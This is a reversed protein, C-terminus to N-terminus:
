SYTNKFHFSVRSHNASFCTDLLVPSAPYLQNHVSLRSKVWDLGFGTGSWPACGLAQSQDSVSGAEIVIIIGDALPQVKICLVGKASSASLNYKIANEVVPQLIGTPMEPLGGPSTLDMVLQFDFHFRLQQIAVYQKIEDLEHTLHRYVGKKGTYAAKLLQGLGETFKKAKKWQGSVLLEQLGFLSNALMHPTISAQMATLQASLERQMLLALRLKKKHWLQMTYWVATIIFTFIGALFVPHEFWRPKVKITYAAAYPTGRYRVQLIGKKYYDQDKLTLLHGTPTWQSYNEPTELFRYELLSDANLGNANFNFQLNRAKEVQINNKLPEFIKRRLGDNYTPIAKVLDASLTDNKAVSRWGSLEPQFSRGIFLLRYPENETEDRKFILEHRETDRICIDLLMVSSDDSIEKTEIDFFLDRVWEGNVLYSCVKYADQSTHSSQIFNLTHRANFSAGPFVRAIRMRGEMMIISNDESPREIYVDAHVVLHIPGIIALAAQEDQQGFTCSTIIALTIVQNLRNIM